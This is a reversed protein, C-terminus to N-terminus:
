AQIRSHLAEQSESAQLHSKEPPSHPPSEQVPPPTQEPQQAAERTEEGREQVPEQQVEQQESSPVHEHRPPTLRSWVSSDQPPRHVVFDFDVFFVKEMEPFDLYVQVADCGKPLQRLSRRGCTQCVFMTPRVVLMSPTVIRMPGHLCHELFSDPQTWGENLFRDFVPRPLKSWLDGDETWGEEQLLTGFESDQFWLIRFDAHDTNSHETCGVRELNDDYLWFVSAHDYRPDRVGRYVERGDMEWTDAVIDLDSETIDSTVDTYLFGPVLRSFM